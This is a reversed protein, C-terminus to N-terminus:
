KENHGTVEISNKSVASARFWGLAGNSINSPINAPPGSFLGGNYETELIVALLFEYYDRSISHMEVDVQLTDTQPLEYLPLYQFEFDFIYNGDVFEDTVFMIDVVTNTVDVGNIYTKWMYNNGIGAPEPGFHSLILSPKKEDSQFADERIDFMITDINSVSELTSNATYNEGDTTVVNLTYTNGIVGQYTNITQYTGPATETLTITSSGDDITVVAGIERPAPQNEYYSTTRTLKVTHAKIQDTVEGEVVLRSNTDDNLEFDITKECAIFTFTLLILTTYITIKM